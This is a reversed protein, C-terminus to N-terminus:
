AYIDLVRPSNTSKASKEGKSSAENQLVAKVFDTKGGRGNSKKTFELDNGSEQMAPDPRGFQVPANYPSQYIYRHVEM